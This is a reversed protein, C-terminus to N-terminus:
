APCPTRLGPAVVEIQNVIREVGPLRSVTTQAVQKLYYSPLCGRLTLVGEQYACSINKLAVYSNRRLQSEAREAVEPALAPRPLVAFEGERNAAGTPVM